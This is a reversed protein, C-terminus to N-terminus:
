VQTPPSLYWRCISLYYFPSSRRGTSTNGGRTCRVLPSIDTESRVVGRTKDMMYPCKGEKGREENEEEKGRGEM